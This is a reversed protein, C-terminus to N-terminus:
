SLSSSDILEILTDLCSEKCKGDSLNKLIIEILLDVNRPSESGFRSGCAKLIWEFLQLIQHNLDSNCSNIYHALCPVLIYLYPSIEKGITYVITNLDDIIYKHNSTLSLDFLNLLLNKLTVNTIYSLLSEIDSLNIPDKLQLLEKISEDRIGTESTLIKNVDKQDKRKTELENLEIVQTLTDEGANKNLIQNLNIINKFFNKLRVECPDERIRWDLM